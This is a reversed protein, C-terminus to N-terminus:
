FILLGRLFLLRPLNNILRVGKARRERALLSPYIDTM